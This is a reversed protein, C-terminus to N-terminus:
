FNICYDICSLAYALIIKFIWLSPLVENDFSCLILELHKKIYIEVLKIWLSSNRYEEKIWM